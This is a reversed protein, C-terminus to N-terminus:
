MLCLLRSIPLSYTSGYSPTCTFLADSICLLWRVLLDVHACFGLHGTIVIIDSDKDKISTVVEDLLPLAAPKLVAKNFDFLVESDLVVKEFRPRPAPPPSAPAPPAARLAPTADAVQRPALGPDCEEVAMAPTWYGAHWCVGTAGRAILGSNGGVVYGATVAAQNCAAGGAHAPVRCGIRSGRFIGIIGNSGTAEYEHREGPQNEEARPM